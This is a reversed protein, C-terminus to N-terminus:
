KKRPQKELYKILAREMKAKFHKPAFKDASRAIKKHDYTDPKFARLAEVLSEVTQSAFFEGTRGPEVYDLAGGAKYAIVPTGAALAEVPVIGFDDLGPFLFAEASQMHYPLQADSVSTLFRVTPGAMDTLRGYEPGKHGIVKLPLKLQSCAAVALDIRKYPTQRGTIV